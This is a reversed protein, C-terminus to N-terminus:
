RYARLIIWVGEGPQGVAQQCRNQLVAAGAGRYRSHSIHAQTGAHKPVDTTSAPLLLHEHLM